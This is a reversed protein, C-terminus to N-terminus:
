GATALLEPSAHVPSLLLENGIRRSLDSPLTHHSSVDIALAQGAQAFLKDWEHSSQSHYFSIIRDFAWALEDCRMAQSQDSFKLSRIMSKAERLEAYDRASLRNARAYMSSMLTSNLHELARCLESGYQKSVVGLRHSDVYKQLVTM